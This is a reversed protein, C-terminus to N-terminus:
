RQRLDFPAAFVVGGVAYVLHGTPLYRGDAGNVLTARRGDKLSQIVVEAKQWRESPSLRSPALTFLMTDDDPLVQPHFALEGEKVTLLTEPTGGNASIRRISGRGDELTGGAQAFLISDGEWRIGYPPSAPGLTVPVGGAVGIRKFFGDGVSVFVLSEGDPSFVPNVLGLPSEAGAIPRAEPEAM